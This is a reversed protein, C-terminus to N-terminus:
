GDIRAADSVNARHASPVNEFSKGAFRASYIGPSCAASPADTASRGVDLAVRHVRSDVAPDVRRESAHGVDRVRSVTLGDRV